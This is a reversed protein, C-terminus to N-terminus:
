LPCVPKKKLSASSTWMTTRVGIMSGVTCCFAILHSVGESSLEAAARGVHDKMAKLGELTPEFLIRTAYAAVGPPCLAAM